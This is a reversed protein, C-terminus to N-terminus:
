TPRKSPVFVVSVAVASTNLESVFVPTSMFEGKERETFAVHGSLTLQGRRLRAANVVTPFLVAQLRIREERVILRILM